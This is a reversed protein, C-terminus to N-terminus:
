LEHSGFLYLFVGLVIIVLHILFASKILNWDM